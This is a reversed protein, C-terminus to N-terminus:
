EFKFLGTSRPADLLRFEVLPGAFVARGVAIFLNDHLVYFTKFRRGIFESLTQVTM